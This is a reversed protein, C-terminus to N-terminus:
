ESVKLAEDIRKLQNRYRAIQTDIELDMCVNNLLDKYCYDVNNRAEKLLEKLAENEAKVEKVVNALESLMPKENVGLAIRIDAIVTILIYNEQESYAKAFAQLQTATGYFKDTDPQPTRYLTLGCEVALEQLEQNTMKHRM